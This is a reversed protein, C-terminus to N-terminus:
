DWVALLISQKWVASYYRSPDFPNIPGIIISTKLKGITTFLKSICPKDRYANESWQMKIIRCQGKGNSGTTLDLLRVLKLSRCLFYKLSIRKGEQQTGHITGIGADLIDQSNKPWKEPDRVNSCFILPNKGRVYFDSDM